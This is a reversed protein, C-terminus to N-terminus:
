NLWCSYCIHIYLYMYIYIYVYTKKLFFVMVVRKPPNRRSIGGESVQSNKEPGFDILDEKVGHIRGILNSWLQIPTKSGGLNTPIKNSGEPFGHFDGFFSLPFATHNTFDQLKVIDLSLCHNTFTFYQFGNSWIGTAYCCRDSVFRAEVLSNFTTSYWPQKFGVQKHKHSCNEQSHKGTAKAKPSKAPICFQQKQQGIWMNHRGHRLSMNRTTVLLILVPSNPWVWGRECNWATRKNTIWKIEAERFASRQLANYSKIIYVRGSVWM